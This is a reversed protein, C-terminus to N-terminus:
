ECTGSITDSASATGRHDHREVGRLPRDVLQGRRVRLRFPELSLRGHEADGAMGTNDLKAVVLAVPELHTRDVPPAQRVDPGHAGGLHRSDPARDGRRESIKVVEADNVTGHLGAM